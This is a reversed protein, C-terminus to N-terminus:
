EEIQVEVNMGARLLKLDEDTNETSFDIRVPFRQQVKVFNGSANDVPISSFRAGSAGAIATVEGSYKKSDLADVNILVKEGVHINALQKELFNAVVWNDKSKVISLLTQGPQILQGVQILKRGAIADYPAVIRTYSLHLQAMHLAAKAKKINVKDMALKQQMEEVSLLANNYQGELASYQAKQADYDSKVQDYQMQTVVEDPLLNEYRDYTQKAHNLLANAADMKAQVVSLNSKAKHIQTLTLDKAALANEYSAEAQECTIKLERDDIRILTDGKQIKQHEQFCVEQVFGQVKSSIPTVFGDVQADNTYGNEGVHFYNKVGFILLLLVIVFVVSNSILLKRKNLGVKGKIKKEEKAM